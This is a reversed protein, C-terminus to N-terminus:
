ALKEICIADAIIQTRTQKGHKVLLSAAHAWDVEQDQLPVEAPTQDQLNTQPCGGM